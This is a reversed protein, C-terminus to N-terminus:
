HSLIWQILNKIQEMDDAPTTRVIRHEDKSGDPLKVMPGTTLHEVLKSEAQADDRYKKAIEKYSPGDKDKKEIDHCKSCNNRRILADAVDANAAQASACCLFAAAFFLAQQKAFRNGM